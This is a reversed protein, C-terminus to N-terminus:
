LPERGAPGAAPQLRGRLRDLERQSEEAGAPPRGAHWPVDRVGPVPDWPPPVVERWVRARARMATIDDATARCERCADLHTDLGRQIAPAAAEDLQPLLVDRAEDCRM